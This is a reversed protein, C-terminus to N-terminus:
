DEFWALAGTAFSPTIGSAAISQATTLAAWALLNGTTLADFIGFHTATGGWTATSTPFTVTGSNSTSSPRDLTGSTPAAGCAPTITVHTGDPVTTVTHRSIETATNVYVVDNAAFGTSSAVLINTTSANSGSIATSVSGAPAGWTADAQTLQVRAYSGGTCETGGGADSPAATFLGVYVAPPSYAWRELNGTTPAVGAAPSVTVHTGDPVTTVTHYSGPTTLRIIDGVNFGTSSTVLINTTSGNAGNVTTSLRRLWGNLLAKEFYATKNAV